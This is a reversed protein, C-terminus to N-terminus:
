VSNTKTNEVYIPNIHGSINLTQNPNNSYTSALPESFACSYVLEVMFTVPGPNNGDISSAWVIFYNETDPLDLVGHSFEESNIMASYPRDFFRANNVSSRMPRPAVQSGQLTGYTMQRQTSYPQEIVAPVGGAQYLTQIELTNSGLLIGAIMSQTQATKQIPTVRIKSSTVTVKKYGAWYRYANAPVHGGTLADPDRISNARFPRTVMQNTGPNLEIIQAYKLRVRAQAPFGNIVRPAIRYKKKKLFKNKQKKGYKKTM